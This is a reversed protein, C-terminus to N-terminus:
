QFSAIRTFEMSCAMPFVRDKHQVISQYIECCRRAQDSDTAKKFHLAEAYLSMFATRQYSRVCWGGARLDVDTPASVFSSLISVGIWVSYKRELPAVVKIKM